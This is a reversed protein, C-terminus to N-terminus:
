MASCAITRSVKRWWWVRTWIHRLENQRLPKILYDIAGLSLCSMVTEREDQTSTVAPLYRLLYGLAPLSLSLTAEEYRWVRWFSGLFGCRYKGVVPIRTLGETKAMRKLLRCANAGPPDHEKLVLDFGAGHEADLLLQLGERATKVATVQCSPGTTRVSGRAAM